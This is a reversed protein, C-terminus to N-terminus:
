PDSLVRKKGNDSLIAIYKPLDVFIIWFEGDGLILIVPRIPGSEFGIHGLYSVFLKFSM